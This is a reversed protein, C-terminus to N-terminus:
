GVIAVLILRSHEAPSGSSLPNAYALRNSHHAHILNLFGDVSM